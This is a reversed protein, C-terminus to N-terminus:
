KLLNAYIIKATELIGSVSPADNLSGLSEPYDYFHYDKALNLSQLKFTVEDENEHVFHDLLSVGEIIQNISPTPNTPISFLIDQVFSFLIVRTEILDIKLM